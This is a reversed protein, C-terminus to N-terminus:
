VSISTRRVCIVTRLTTVRSVAVGALSNWFHIANYAASLYMNVIAFFRELM